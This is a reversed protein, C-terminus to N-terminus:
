NSNPLFLIYGKGFQDEISRWKSQKLLLSMKISDENEKDLIAFSANDLLADLRKKQTLAFGVNLHSRSMFPAMLNMDSLFYENNSIQDPVFRKFESLINYNSYQLTQSSIMKSDFHKLITGLILTLTFGLIVLKTIYRQFIFSNFNYANSIFYIFTCTLAPSLISLTSWSAGSAHGYIISNVFLRLLILIIGLFLCLILNKKKNHNSITLLTLSLILWVFLYPFPYFVHKIISAYDVDSISIFSSIERSGHAGDNMSRYYILTFISFLSSISYVFCIRILDRINFLFRSNSSLLSLPILFLSWLIFEEKTLIILCLCILFYERNNNKAAIFLFIILPISVLDAQFLWKSDIGNSSFVQIFFISGLTYSYIKPLGHNRSLIIILYSSIFYISIVIIGLIYPTKFMYIIPSLILPTIFSHVGLLYQADPGEYTGYGNIFNRLFSYFTFGDNTYFLNHWQYNFRIISLILSFIIGFILTRFFFINAMNKVFETKSIGLFKM